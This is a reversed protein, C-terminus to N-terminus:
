GVELGNCDCQLDELNPLQELFELSALSNESIDLSQLKSMDQTGFSLTRILNNSLKLCKLNVLKKFSDSEVRKIRSSSVSDCVSIVFGDYILIVSVGYISFFLDMMSQFLLDVM